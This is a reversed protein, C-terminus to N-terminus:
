SEKNDGDQTPQHRPNIHTSSTNMLNKVISGFGRVFLFLLDQGVVRNRIRSSILRLLSSDFESSTKVTEEPWQKSRWSPDNNTSM